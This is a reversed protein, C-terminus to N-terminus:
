TPKEKDTHVPVLLRRAEPSFELLMVSERPETQTNDVRVRLYSPLSRKVADTIDYPGYDTCGDIYVRTMLQQGADYREYLIKDQYRWYLAAKHQSQMSRKIWEFTNIMACSLLHETVSDVDIAPEMKCSMTHYRQQGFSGNITAGPFGMRCDFWDELCAIVDRTIM